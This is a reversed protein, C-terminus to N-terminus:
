PTGGEQQKPDWQKTRDQAELIKFHLQQNKLLLEAVIMELCSIDECTGPFSAKLRSVRESVLAVRSEAKTTSMM